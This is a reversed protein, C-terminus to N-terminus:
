DCVAMIAESCLARLARLRFDAAPLDRGRATSAVLPAGGASTWDIEIDVAHESHVSLAISAVIMDSIESRRALMLDVDALEGNPRALVLARVILRAIPDDAHSAIAGPRDLALIAM